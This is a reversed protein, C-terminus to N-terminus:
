NLEQPYHTKIDDYLTDIIHEYFLIIDPEEGLEIGIIIEHELQSINKNIYELTPTEQTEIM